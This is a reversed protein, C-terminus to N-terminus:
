LCIPVLLVPLAEWLVALLALAAIAATLWRMFGSPEPLSADHRVSHLAGSITLVLVIVAALTAAGIFWPVADVGFWAAMGRRECALTTLAYIALFHAAWILPGIWVRWTALSATVGTFRSIM